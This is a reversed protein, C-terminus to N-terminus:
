PEESEEREGSGMKKQLENYAKLLEEQSKFKGGILAVDEQENTLQEFRANRDAEDAEVLCAQGQELASTEAAQQEPTAADQGDAPDFTYTAM